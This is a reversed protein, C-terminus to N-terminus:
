ISQKKHRQFEKFKHLLLDMEEDSEIPCKQDKSEMDKMDIVRLALSKKKKDDYKSEILSNLEIEYEQLKDFLTALNTLSLDKSAHIM